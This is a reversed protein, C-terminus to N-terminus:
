ELYVLTLQCDIILLIFIIKFYYKSSTRRIPSIGLQTVGGIVLLATVGLAQLITIAYIFWPTYIKISDLQSRIVAKEKDKVELQELSKADERNRFLAKKIRELKKKAGSADRNNSYHELIM